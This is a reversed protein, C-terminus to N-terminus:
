RQKFIGLIIISQKEFPRLEKTYNILGIAVIEIFLITEM